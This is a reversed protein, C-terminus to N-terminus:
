SENQGNQRIAGLRKWNGCLEHGKDTVSFFAGNHYVLKDKISKSLFKRIQYRTAGFEDIFCENIEKRTWLSQTALVSIAQQQNIESQDVLYEHTTFRKNCKPCLRRRRVYDPQIRTDIVLTKTYCIPCNM